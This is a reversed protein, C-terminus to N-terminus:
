AAARTAIRGAILRDADCADLDAILARLGAITHALAGPAPDEGRYLNRVLAPAPDGGPAFGTRYAGIRGGLAGMMKGIHKGVVVDGVGQQRLQGDMDEVFIEALRATEPACDPLSELRRMVLSLVAAVMEFRGDISDAVGGDRYWHPARAIAVVAAYLPRQAERPDPRASFLSALRAFM